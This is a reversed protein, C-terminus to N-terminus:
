GDLQSKQIANRPATRSVTIDKISNRARQRSKSRPMRPGLLALHDIPVGIRKARTQKDVKAKTITPGPGRRASIAPRGVGRARSTKAFSDPFFVDDSSLVRGHTTPRSIPGKTGPINVTTEPFRDTFSFRKSLPRKRAM